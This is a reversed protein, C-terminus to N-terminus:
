SARGELFLASPRYSGQGMAVVEERPQLLWYSPM